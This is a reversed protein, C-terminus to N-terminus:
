SIIRRPRGAAWSEEYNHHGKLYDFAKDSDRAAPSLYPSFSARVTGTADLKEQFVTCEVKGTAAKDFLSPCGGPPEAADILNAEDPFASAVIKFV